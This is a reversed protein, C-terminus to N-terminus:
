SKVLPVGYKEHQMRNWRVYYDWCDACYWTDEYDERFGKLSFRAPKGCIQPDDTIHSSVMGPSNPCRM